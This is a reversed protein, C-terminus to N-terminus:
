GCNSSNMDLRMSAVVIVASEQWTTMNDLGSTTVSTMRRALREKSLYHVPNMSPQPLTRRLLISQIRPTHDIGAHAGPDGGQSIQFHAFIVVRRSKTAVVIAAIAETVNCGAADARDAVALM